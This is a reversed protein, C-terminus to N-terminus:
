VILNQSSTPVTDFPNDVTVLAPQMAQGWLILFVPEGLNIKVLEEPSPKWATIIVPEENCTTKCAHIDVCNEMSAPALMVINCQTFRTPNM